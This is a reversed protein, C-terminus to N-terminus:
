SLASIRIAFYVFPLSRVAASSINECFPDSPVLMRSKDADEPQDLRTNVLTKLALFGDPITIFQIEAAPWPISGQCVTPNLAAKPIYRNWLKM